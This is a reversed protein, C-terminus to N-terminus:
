RYDLVRYLQLLGQENCPLQVLHGRLSEELEFSEPNQSEIYCSSAQEGPTLPTPSEQSLLSTVKKQNCQQIGM